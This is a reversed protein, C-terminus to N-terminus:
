FYVETKIKEPAIGKEQLLDYAAYIMECNGCLYVYADADVENGQLYDTVRGHFDGDDARSTCSLYQRYDEREYAEAEERIGHLVLLDLDPYAGNMSHFPAIGSGTAVALVRCDRNEPLTFFGYPGNVLVCDGSSLRRLKRSVMGPDTETILVELYPAGPSSYISYERIDPDGYVGLAIHQGPEFPMDACDIRLVYAKSSLNRVCLVRRVSEGEVM